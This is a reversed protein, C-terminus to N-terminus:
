PNRRISAAVIAAISAPFWWDAHGNAVCNLSDALCVVCIVAALRPREAVFQLMM